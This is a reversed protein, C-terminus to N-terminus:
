AKDFRLSVIGRAALAEALQRASGNKGALLPSTWDRDTPGSGAMLLLGPGTGHAPRTLTGPITRPPTGVVFTVEESVIASDASMPVDAKRGAAPSFALMVALLPTAVPPQSWM